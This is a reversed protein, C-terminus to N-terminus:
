YNDDQLFSQENKFHKCSKAIGIHSPLWLPNVNLCHIIWGHIPKRKNKDCGVNHQSTGSVSAFVFNRSWDVPFNIRLVYILALQLIVDVPHIIHLMSYYNKYSM